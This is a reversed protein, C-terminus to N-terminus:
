HFPKLSRPRKLSKAAETKLWGLLHFACPDFTSASQRVAYALETMESRMYRRITSRSIGFCKATQRLSVKDRIHWHRVIKPLVM